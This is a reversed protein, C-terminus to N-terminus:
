HEMSTGSYLVFPPAPYPVCMQTSHPVYKHLSSGQVLPIIAHLVDNMKVCFLLLM